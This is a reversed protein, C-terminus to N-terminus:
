VNAFNSLDALAADLQDATIAAQERISVPATNHNLGFAVVAM